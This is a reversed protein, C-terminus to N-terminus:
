RYNRLLCWFPLRAGSWAQDIRHGLRIVDVVANM